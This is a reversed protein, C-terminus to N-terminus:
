LVNFIPEEFTGKVKSTSVKSAVLHVFVFLIKQFVRYKIQNCEHHGKQDMAHVHLAQIM